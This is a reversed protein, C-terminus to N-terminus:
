SPFERTGDGTEPTLAADPNNDLSTRSAVGFRGEWNQKIVLSLQM